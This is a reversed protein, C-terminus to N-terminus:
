AILPADCHSQWAMLGGAMMPVENSAHHPGADRQKWQGSSGEQETHGEIMPDFPEGPGAREQVGRHQETTHSGYIREAGLGPLPEGPQVGQERSDHEEDNGTHHQRRDDMMHQLM